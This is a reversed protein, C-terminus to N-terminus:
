VDGSIVSRLRQRRSDTVHQDTTNADHLAACGDFEAAAFLQRPPEHLRIPLASRHPSKNGIPQLDLEHNQALTSYFVGSQLKGVCAGRFRIKLFQQFETTRFAKHSRDLVYVVNPTSLRKACVINRSDAFLRMDAPFATEAM